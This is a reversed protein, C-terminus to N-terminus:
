GIEAKRKILNLSTKAEDMLWPVEPNNQKMGFIRFAEIIDLEAEQLSKKYKDGNPRDSLTLLLSAKFLKIKGWLIPDRLDGRQDAEKFYKLAEVETERNKSLAVALNLRSRYGDQDLNLAQRSSEISKDLYEQNSTEHWLRMYTAGLNIYSDTKIRHDQAKEVLSLYRIESGNLDGKFLLSNAENFLRLEDSSVSKQSSIQTKETATEEPPNRFVAGEKGIKVFLERLKLGMENDNRIWIFILCIIAFFDMGKYVSFITLVVAFWTM